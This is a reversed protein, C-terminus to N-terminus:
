VEDQDFEERKVGPRFLSVGILLLGVLCILSVYVTLIFALGAKVLEM